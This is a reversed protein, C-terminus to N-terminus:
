QGDGTNAIMMEEEVKVEQAMRSLPKAEDQDGPGVM